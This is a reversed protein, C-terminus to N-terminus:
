ADLRVVRSGALLAGVRPALPAGRRWYVVGIGSNLITRRWRWPMVFRGLRAASDSRRDTVSFRLHTAVPDLGARAAEHWQREDIVLVFDAARDSDAVARGPVALVATAEPRGRTM